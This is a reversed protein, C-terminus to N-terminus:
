APEDEGLLDRAQDELRRLDKADQSDYYGRIRQRRDVLVLRVSHTVREAAKADGGAAIEVPLFFGRRILDLVVQPQGTLLKWRRGDIGHSRAYAALVPPTDYQPDVSFSVIRLDDEDRLARALRGLRDVIIPCPGECRTYIFSAVWVHGALDESGFAGGSQDVLEFAPVEAIVPLPRRMLRLSVAVAAVAALLGVAAWLAAARGARAGAM